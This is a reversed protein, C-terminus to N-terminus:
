GKAEIADSLIETRQIGEEVPMGLLEVLLGAGEYLKAVLDRGTKDRGNQLLSSLMRGRQEM